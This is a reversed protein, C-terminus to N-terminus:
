RHEPVLRFFSDAPPAQGATDEVLARVRLGRVRRILRREALPVEVKVIPKRLTKTCAFPTRDGVARTPDGPREALTRLTLEGDLRTFNGVCTVQLRVFRGELPLPRELPFVALRPLQLPPTDAQAEADAVGTVKAFGKKIEGKIADLLGPGGDEGPGGDDPPGSGTIRRPKDTENDDDPNYSALNTPDNDSHCGPDSADVQGDGDNDSGDACQPTRPTRRCGGIVPDFSGDLGSFQKDALPDSGADVGAGGILVDKGEQGDLTDDGPGGDLRDNGDGGALCDNGPGGDITDDGKGGDITDDGEGGDITDDGGLGCIFDPGPTGTLTEPGDTGLIAGAPCTTPPTGDAPAPAVAPAPAPAPPQSATPAAALAAASTAAEHAISPASADSGYAVAAAPPPEVPPAPDASGLGQEDEDPSAPPQDPPSGDSQAAASADDPQPDGVETAPAGAAVPAAPAPPPSADASNAPEGGM